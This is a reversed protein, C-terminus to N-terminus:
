PDADRHRLITLADILTGAPVFREHILATDSGVRVYGGEAEIADAVEGATLPEANLLADLVSRTVPGAVKDLQFLPGKVGAAVLGRRVANDIHDALRDVIVEPSDTM